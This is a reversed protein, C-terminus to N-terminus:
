LDLSLVSKCLQHGSPHPAVVQRYYTEALAPVRLERARVGSPVLDRPRSNIPTPRMAQTQQRKYQQRSRRPMTKSASWSSSKNTIEVGRLLSLSVKCDRMEGPNFFPRRCPIFGVIIPPSIPGFRRTTPNLVTYVIRFMSVLHRRGLPRKGM